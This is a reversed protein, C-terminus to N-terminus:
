EDYYTYRINGVFSPSLVTTAPAANPSVACLLVNNTIPPGTSDPYKIDINTKIFATWCEAVLNGSCCTYHRRKGLVVFRDDNQPFPYSTNSTVSQLYTSLAANSGNPQTDLLVFLDLFAPLSVSASVTAGVLTYVDLRYQISTLKIKQGVRTTGTVGEANTDVFSTIYPTGSFPSQLSIGFDATKLDKGGSGACYTGRVKVCKKITQKKVQAISPTSKAKKVLVLSSSTAKRKMNRLYHSFRLDRQRKSEREIMEFMNEDPGPWTYNDM